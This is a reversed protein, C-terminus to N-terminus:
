PSKFRVLIEEVQAALSTRRVLGIGSAFYLRHTATGSSNRVEVVFCDKKGIPLEVVEDPMRAFVRGDPAEFQEGAGPLVYEIRWASSILHPQSRRYVVSGDSTIQHAIPSSGGLDTECSAVKGSQAEIISVVRVKYASAAAKSTVVYEWEMGVQAPAWSPSSSIGAPLTGVLISVDVAPVEAPAHSKAHKRVFDRIFRARDEPYPHTRLYQPSNDSRRDREAFIDFITASDAPDFGAKLYLDVGFEDAEAELERSHALSQLVVNREADRQAAPTGGRLGAIVSQLIINWENASAQRVAHRNHAHGIEHALVMALADDDSLVNVLDEYVAIYGGPLCFANIGATGSEDVAIVVVQYPYRRDQVTGLLTGFVREVRRVVVENRSLCGRRMLEDYLQRGVEIEKQADKRSFEFQQAILVSPLCLVALLLIASKM